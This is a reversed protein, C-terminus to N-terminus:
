TVETFVVTVPQMLKDKETKKAYEEQGQITADACDKISAFVKGGVKRSVFLRDLNGRRPLAKHMTMLKKSKPDM